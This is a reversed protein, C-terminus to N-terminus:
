SPVAAEAAREGLPGNATVAEVEVRNDHFVAGGGMDADREDVTANINAGGRVHKLWHGKTSAVVGPRVRDSVQVEATFEGRANFVRAEDGTRLGREAADSPHLEIRPGGARAMLDPKNAFTSNLFWHSAPAVLALGEPEAAEAPPTYGPLPDHGDDAARQSVFELRGSPTPFGHEFPIFPDPVDLRVWGKQLLREFMEDGVFTRALQEDSDYLAPEELGMRRALRRFTETTSLCEGPPDVAPSNLQLYMHGYAEHVDLHEIQMTAPLVIDAYDVTDTPFQEMVVTFLDERELARRVRGQDPNSAMPNAGYVVLAHVTGSELHEGMRTMSLTRVPAQLLDSRRLARMNGRYWGSTSYSTGGGLLKWDGTVGPLAHLTRLAMGGGAHRQMGMTARITTPRTTALRRGLAVIREEPLGTIAAVRDPPFELIRERFAEWGLTREALYERDEAGMDLVVWLLGLALAADTGPLPALHEHAQDATRTRLPDIAVLHAGAKKAANIYKWAHHGSTLTNTGWLLLLKAHVFTEPDVGGATGVTYEAGVRGAVSCATMRHRSAGLVNWLRRGAHGELGQIFGLTGTGQFPWIAEGGHQDIVARLREAVEDLAADWSIREFRGEGKRGVRRLPYLLRDPAQAHEVYGNVKACLAGNTFPHERNGRLRVAKGDEVTVVWSCTDPCDLPCAGIVEV